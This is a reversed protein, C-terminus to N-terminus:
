VVRKKSSSIEIKLTLKHHLMGSPNHKHMLMHSYNNVNEQNESAVSDASYDIREIEPLLYSNQSNIIICNKKEIILKRELKEFDTYNIHDGYKSATISNKCVM